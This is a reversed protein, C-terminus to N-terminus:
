PVTYGNLKWKEGKNAIVKEPNKEGATKMVPKVIM